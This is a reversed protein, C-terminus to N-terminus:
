NEYKNLLTKQLAVAAEFIRDDMIEGRILKWFDFLTLLTKKLEM